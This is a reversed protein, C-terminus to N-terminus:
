RTQAQALPTASSQLAGARDSASEQNNRYGLKGRTVAILVFSVVAFAGLLYFTNYDPLLKQLEGQASNMAAHFLAVILVSQGVSNFLWTALIRVPLAYVILVGISFMIGGFTVPGGVGIGMEPVFLAPVHMLAWVPAIILSAILAGHKSQLEPLAFGMQGSEEWLNVLVALLVAGLLYPVVSGGAQSLLQGFPGIGLMVAVSLAGLVPTVVLALVYWQPGFRFRFLRKVFEHRGQKGGMVWSMVLGAVLPGFLSAPLNFLQVPFPFSFAVVGFGQSSLLLPLYALWLGTFMLVLYSAIPHRQMTSKLSTAPAQATQSKMINASM